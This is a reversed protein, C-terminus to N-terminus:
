RCTKVSCSPVLTSGRPTEIEVLCVRCAGYPSFGRLHCLTPISLGMGRAADLITTGRAVESTRGDITVVARDASSAEMSDAEKRM